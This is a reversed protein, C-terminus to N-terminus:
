QKSKKADERAKRIAEEREKMLRRFEEGEAERREADAEEKRKQQKEFEIRANQNANEVEKYADALKSELSAVYETATTLQQQVELLDATVREKAEIAEKYQETINETAAIYEDMKLRDEEYARIQGELTERQKTMVDCREELTEITRKQEDMVILSSEWTKEQEKYECIQQEQQRNVVVIKNFEEELNKHYAQDAKANHELQEVAKVLNEREASITLITSKAENLENQIRVANEMIEVREQEMSARMAEMEAAKEEMATQFAEETAVRLDDMQEAHEAAMLEIANDKEALLSQYEEDKERLQEEAKACFASAENLESTVRNKEQTLGEIENKARVLEKEFLEANDKYEQLKRENELAEEKMREEQKIRLMKEYVYANEPTGLDESGDIVYPRYIVLDDVDIVTLVIGPILIARWRNSSSFHCPDQKGEAESIADLTFTAPQNVYPINKVNKSLSINGIKKSEVVMAFHIQESLPRKERMRNKTSSMIESYLLTYITVGLLLTVIEMIIKVWLPKVEEFKSFFPGTLNFHIRHWVYYMAFVVVGVMVVSLVAILVGKIVSLKRNKREIEANEQEIQEKEEKLQQYDCNVIRLDKCEEFQM